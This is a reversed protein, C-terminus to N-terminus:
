NNGNEHKVTRDALGQLKANAIRGEKYKSCMRSRWPFVATGASDGGLGISEYSDNLSEDLLREQGADERDDLFNFAGCRNCPGWSM